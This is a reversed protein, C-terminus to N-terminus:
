DRWFPKAIERLVEGRTLGIDALMRDDLRALVVRDRRRERWTGVADAARVLARSASSGFGRLAVALQVGAASGRAVRDSYTSMDIRRVNIQKQEVLERISRPAKIRRERPYDQDCGDGQCVIM